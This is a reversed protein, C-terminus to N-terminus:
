SWVAKGDANAGNTWAGTPQERVLARGAFWERSLAAADMADWGADTVIM